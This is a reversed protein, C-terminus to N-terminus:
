ALEARGEWVKEFADAVDALDREDMPPRMCENLVLEKEDMRECVPCLGKDYRVDSARDGMVWPFGKGGYAIKEQFIPLMYLPKVYASNLLVGEGERLRTPALEAKVAAVFRERSVGAAEEHFRFPQMYYVHTCGKRVTPPTFCPLQGIRASLYECNRQRAQVLGGLKGIQTLAIAAQLETLRYNFGILNRIDGVGKGKVVSEAHNRILMMREALRDDNTTIVGGEGAHIHKHYNLSFVGITGLTGAYRGSHLAGPAQANDEIVALGHKEALANIGERDYPLGFLDVAMIARTRPTIKAEVAKADICFCDEEIDAFVPICNYVLPAMVTASMTYPPVIIEDGPEVDLAGVACYLGSTCSNVAIAHKVGFHEAWAREFAKVVPGGFFDEDWCGLYRSLIGTEMVEVVARTEEEGIYKYAPFPETRVPKGGNIALKM